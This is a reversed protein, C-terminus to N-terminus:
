DINHIKCKEGNRVFTVRIAIHRTHKSDKGSKAMCVASKIDLIILRTEEPVIDPNKNFLDHILMRSHALAMGLTYEANYESEASSQAVPGPVHTGHDIKGSKYFIIYALKSRGTYPFDQWSFDFFAMLQNETKISPQILLDSLPTDKTNTFYKLGLTINDRIYRSLYVLGEFHFKGTNSSFKSIKQLSSSLDLRKSLLYVLSGICARYHFNLKRTLKEVQEDSTSAYDNTFIMDSLFTTRYINTSTKVTANDLYKDVISTAYRAQGVSISHDKM